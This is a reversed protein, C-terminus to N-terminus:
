AQSDCSTALRLHMKAVGTIMLLSSYCAVPAPPQQQGEAAELQTMM